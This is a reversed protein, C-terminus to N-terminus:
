GFLGYKIYMHIYINTSQCFIGSGQWDGRPHKQCFNQFPLKSSSRAAFQRKYSRAAFQSKQMLEYLFHPASKQSPTGRSELFDFTLEVSATNLNWFFRYTKSDLPVQQRAQLTNCHTATHQLTNCHTATHQTQCKSVVQFGSSGRAQGATHQLTNCRITTHQM